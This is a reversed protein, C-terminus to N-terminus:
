SSGGPPGGSPFFQGVPPNSGPVIFGAGGNGGRGGLGGGGPNGFGAVYNSGSGGTVGAGPGSAGGFGGAGAFPFGFLSTTASVNMTGNITVDGRSLFAVPLSGLGVFTQAADVTISNFDFVAIGNYVVGTVLPKGLLGLSIV